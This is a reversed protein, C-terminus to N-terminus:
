AAYGQEHTSQNLTESVYASGMELNSISSAGNASFVTGLGPNEWWSSASVNQVHYAPARNSVDDQEGLMAACLGPSVRRPSGAHEPHLFAEDKELPVVDFEDPMFSNEWELMESIPLFEVSLGVRFAAALRVLTELSFRVQGPREMACIRAQKMEAEVGLESQTLERRRRLSRIQAPVLVDLKSHLYAERLSISNALESIKKSRENM